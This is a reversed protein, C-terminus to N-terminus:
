TIAEKFLAHITWRDPPSGDGVSQEYEFPAALAVYRTEEPTNQPDLSLFLPRGIGLFDSMSDFANRDTVRLRPFVVDIVHRSPKRDQFLAGQDSETITSLDEIKDSYGQKVARGPQFYSGIYSVGIQSYAAPNAVDDILFEWWRYTQDASFYNIVIRTNGSLAQSFAPATWADSSNARVTITGSGLNHGIVMAVKATLASALDFKLWERSHYSVNAATYSTSGSSDASTDFGLDKGASTTANTGTSWKLVLANSGTARAITFKLTTADYTVTYTNTAGPAANMATQVQTAYDAATGYNGATLTAVRATGAESFDLKDNRGAVVNYGLKSRWVKTPLADRVWVRPFASDQSSSSIVTPGLQCFNQYALRPTRDAM